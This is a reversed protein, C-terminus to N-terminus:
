RPRVYALLVLGHDTPINMARLHLFKTWWILIEHCVFFGASPRSFAPLFVTNFGNM